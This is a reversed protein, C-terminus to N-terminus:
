SDTRTPLRKTSPKTGAAETYAQLEAYLAEALADLEGQRKLPEGDGDYDPRQFRIADLECRCPLRRLNSARSSRTYM